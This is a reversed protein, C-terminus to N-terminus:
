RGEAVRAAATVPDGSLYAARVRRAVAASAGRGGIAVPFERAFDAWHRLEPFFRAPTVASAVVLDPRIMRAARVLDGLPTDAGLYKVRWGHYSYLSLGFCLLGVDHEEGPACALLAVPGGGREWGDALRLLRRRVVNSAFHEHAVSIEGREWRTGLEDLYPLVVGQIADALGLNVLCRDVLREGAAGDYRDLAEGLSALLASAGFAPPAVASDGPPAKALEAAEKPAVGRALHAQMEAARRVDDGSYLRYGNAARSPELLGYRREWVRLLAPSAGVRRSLEGIRLHTSTAPM